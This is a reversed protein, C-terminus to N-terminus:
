VWATPVQGKVAVITITTFFDDADLLRQVETQFAAFDDVRDPFTTVAREVMSALSPAGSSGDDAWETRAHVAARHEVDVLGAAKAFSRLFGGIDGGPRSTMLERATSNKVNTAITRFDSDILVVWGGPKTVRVMEAIAAQPDPLWQLVRESRTADFTDDDFELAMADGLRLDIDLGAAEARRRAEAIMEASADIGVMRGRRREQALSILVDALGCGVDIISDATGFVDHTFERLVRTADWRATADMSNLLMAARPHADVDSFGFKVPSAGSREEGSRAEVVPLAQRIQRVKTSHLAATIADATRRRV